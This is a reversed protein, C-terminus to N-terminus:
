WAEAWRLRPRSISDQLVVKGTQVAIVNKQTNVTFAVVVGGLLIVAGVIIIIKKAKM